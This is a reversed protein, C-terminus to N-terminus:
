TQPPPPTTIRTIAEMMVTREHPETDLAAHLFSGDILADLMQSTTPDFHRALATRSRHMWAHTITRYAPERAALTYLEQSLILEQSSGALDLYILDVIAERAQELTHARALNEEFRSALATSFRTFAEHLMEDMTHFHYTMSGLPVDACAAIKRQSAGAVGHAAIVELTAEIIRDRRQPDYRRTAM